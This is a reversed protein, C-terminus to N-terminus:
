CCSISLSLPGHTLSSMYILRRRMCTSTSVLIVATQATALSTHLFLQPMYSCAKAAFRSGDILPIASRETQWLSMFAVFALVCAKAIIQDLETYRCATSDNSYAADLTHRFLVPDILPFAMFVYTESYFSLLHEVIPKDPLTDNLPNQVLELLKSPRDQAVQQAQWPRGFIQIHQFVPEEGARSRIWATGAASFISMGDRMNFDGVHSGAFYVESLSVHASQFTESPLGVSAPM